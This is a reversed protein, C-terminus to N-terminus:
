FLELQEHADKLENDLMKLAIARAKHPLKDTCSINTNTPIHTLFVEYGRITGWKGPLAHVRMSIDTPKINM